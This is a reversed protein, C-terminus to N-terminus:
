VLEANVKQTEHLEEEVKLTSMEEKLNSIEKVLDDNIKQTENLDGKVRKLSELALDLDVKITGTQTELSDISEQNKKAHEHITENLVENASLRQTLTEVEQREAKLETELEKLREKNTEATVDYTEDLGQDVSELDEATTQAKAPLVPAVSSSNSTKAMLEKRDIVTSASAAGGMISMEVPKAVRVHGLNRAQIVDPKFVARSDTNLPIVAKAAKKIEDRSLEVTGGFNQIPSEPTEQETMFSKTFGCGCSVSENSATIHLSTSCDPCVYEFQLQNNNM